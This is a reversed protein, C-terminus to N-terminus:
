LNGPLIKKSPDMTKWAEAQTPTMAKYALATYHVLPPVAYSSFFSQVIEPEEGLHIIVGKLNDLNESPLQQLTIVRLENKVIDLKFPLGLSKLFKERNPVQGVIKKVVILILPRIVVDKKFKEKFM